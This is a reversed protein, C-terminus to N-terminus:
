FRFGHARLTRRSDIGNRFKSHRHANPISGRGALIRKRRAAQRFLISAQDLKRVTRKTASNDHADRHISVSIQPKKKIISRDIILNDNDCASARISSKRAFSVTKSWPSFALCRNCFERRGTAVKTIKSAYKRFRGANRTGGCEASEGDTDRPIRPLTGSARRSNKLEM